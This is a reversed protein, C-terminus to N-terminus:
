RMYSLLKLDQPFIHIFFLKGCIIYTMYNLDHYFCYSTKCPILAIVLLIYNLEYLNYNCEYIQDKIDIIYFTSLGIKLQVFYVILNGFFYTTIYLQNFIKFPRGWIAECLM